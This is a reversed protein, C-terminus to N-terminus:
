AVFAFLRLVLALLPPSFHVGTFHGAQEPSEVSCVVEGPAQFVPGDSLSLHVFVLTGLGLPASLRLWAHDCSLDLLELVEPASATGDPFSFCAVRAGARLLASPM